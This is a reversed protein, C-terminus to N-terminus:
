LWDGRAEARAIIGDDYYDPEDPGDDEEMSFDDQNNYLWDWVKDTVAKVTPEDMVEWAEGNEDACYVTCEVSVIEFDGDPPDGPDGNPMYMRGSEEWWEANASVDCTYTIGEHEIELCDNRYSAKGETRM